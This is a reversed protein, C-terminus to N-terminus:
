RPTMPGPNVERLCVLVGLFAAGLSIFAGALVALVFMRQFDLNAKRVGLEEAKAAMEPPLLADFKFVGNTEM